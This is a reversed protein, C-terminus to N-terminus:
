YKKEPLLANMDKAYKEIPYDDRKEDALVKWISSFNSRQKEYINGIYM